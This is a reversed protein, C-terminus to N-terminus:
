RGRRGRRRGHKAAFSELLAILSDFDMGRIPFLYEVVKSDGTEGSVGRRNVVAEGPNGDADKVIATPVLALPSGPGIWPLSSRLFSVSCRAGVGPTTQAAGDQIVTGVQDLVVGECRVHGPAGGLFWTNNLAKQYDAIEGLADFHFNAFTRTLTYALGPLDDAYEFPRKVDGDAVVETKEGDGLRIYFAPDPDDPGEETRTVFKTTGMPGAKRTTGIVPGATTDDFVDRWSELAVTPEEFLQRSIGITRASLSWRLHDPNVTMAMPGGIGYDVRVRWSQHTLTELLVYGIARSYGNWPNLSGYPYQAEVFGRPDPKTLETREDPGHIYTVGFIRPENVGMLGRASGDRSKFEERITLKPM